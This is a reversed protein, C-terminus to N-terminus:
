LWYNETGAFVGHCVGASTGSFQHKQLLYSGVIEMDAHSVFPHAWATAGEVGAAQLDASTSPDLQNSRLKQLDQYAGLFDKM